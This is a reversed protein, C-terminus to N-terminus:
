LLPIIIQSTIIFLILLHAPYFIYFFYKMRIGRKGNYLSIPILACLATLFYPNLMGKITFDLGCGYMILAATIYKIFPKDRLLYFAVMLLVGYYSGDLMCKYALFAGAATLICAAPINNNLKKIAALIVLGLLLTFLVNQAESSIFQGRFALDYVPESVIAFIGLNLMYKKLNHTHLFGEVLLFCFIPFALRGIIHCVDLLSLLMSFAKDTFASYPANLIIGNKLVIQGAHDILMSVVALLKLTSGTFYKKM